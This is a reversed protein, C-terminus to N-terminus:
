FPVLVPRVMHPRKRNGSEREVAIDEDSSRSKKIYIFTKSSVYCLTWLSFSICKNKRELFRYRRKEKLVFFWYVRINIEKNYLRISEWQDYVTVNKKEKFIM